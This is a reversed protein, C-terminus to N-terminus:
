YNQRTKSFFLILFKKGKKRSFWFYISMKEASIIRTAQDVLWSSVGGALAYFSRFGDFLGSQAFDFADFFNM